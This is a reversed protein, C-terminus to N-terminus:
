KLINSKTLKEFEEGGYRRALADASMDEFWMVIKERTQDDVFPLSHCTWYVGNLYGAKFARIIKKKTKGKMPRKEM